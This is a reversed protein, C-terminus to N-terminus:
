DIYATGTATIKIDGSLSCGMIGDAWDVSVFLDGGPQSIMLNSVSGQQRDALASALAATGSGCSSEWVLSDVAKVRVVPIMENIRANFFMVGFCDLSLGEKGLLDEAIDIYLEDAAKSWLIVHTIGEYIVISYEGLGENRGHLIRLPLPMDIKASITHGSGQNQVRAKLIGAHGSVQICIEKEGYFGDPRKGELGGAAIWAGFSRSANGCFEGGMMHLKAVAGFEDAQELFGVQEASLCTDAMIKAAIEPYQERSLPDLILVTTNGSPNFKVFQLEM